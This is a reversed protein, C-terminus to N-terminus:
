QKISLRHFKTHDSKNPFLQLNEIRDDQKNKVSSIPYKIGKHHIIEKKTLYRGLCQEMVLHSRFIYGNKASNPHDPKRILIYGAYNQTKGSKWNWHKEGSIQLFKKGKRSSKCGKKFETTPSIHKGKLRKSMRRKVKDSRTKGKNALAIKRRHEETQKYFRSPM